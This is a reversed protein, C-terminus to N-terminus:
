RPSDGHFALPLQLERQPCPYHQCDNQPAGEILHVRTRAFAM